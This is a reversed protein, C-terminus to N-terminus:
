KQTSISKKKQMWHPRLFDRKKELFHYVNWMLGYGVGQGPAQQAHHPLEDGAGEGGEEDKADAARYLKM